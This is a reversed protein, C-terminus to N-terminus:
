WTAYKLLPLKLVIGVYRFKDAVVLGHRKKGVGIRGVIKGVGVVVLLPLQCS